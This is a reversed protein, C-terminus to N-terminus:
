RLSQSPHFRQLLLRRSNKAMTAICWSMV